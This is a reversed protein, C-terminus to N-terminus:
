RSALAGEFTMDDSVYRRALRFNEDNLAEIYSLVLGRANKEVPM